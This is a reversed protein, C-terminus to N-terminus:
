RKHYNIIKINLVSYVREYDTFRRVLGLQSVKIRMNKINENTNSHKKNYKYIHVPLSLVL